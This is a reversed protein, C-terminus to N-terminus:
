PAPSSHPPRPTHGKSASEHACRRLHQAASAFTKFCQPMEHQPRPERERHPIRAFRIHMTPRALGARQPSTKMRTNTLAKRHAAGKQLATPATRGDFHDGAPFAFSDFDGGESRGSLGMREGGNASRCHRRGLPGGKPEASTADEAAASKTPRPGWFLRGLAFIGLLGGLAAAICRLQSFFPMQGARRTRRNERKPTTPTM